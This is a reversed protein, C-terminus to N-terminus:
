SAIRQDHRGNVHSALEPATVEVEHMEKLWAIITARRIKKESANLMQQRLTEPLACVVCAKQKKKRVYDLLSLGKDEAM